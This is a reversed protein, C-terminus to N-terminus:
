SHGSLPVVKLTVNHSTNLGLNEKYIFAMLKRKQRLLVQADGHLIPTQRHLHVTLVGEFPNRAKREYPGSGEWTLKRLGEQIAELDLRVELGVRQFLCDLDDLEMGVVLLELQLRPHFLSYRFSRSPYRPQDNPEQVSQGVCGHHGTLAPFM